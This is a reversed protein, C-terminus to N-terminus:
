GKRLTTPITVAAGGTQYLAFIDGRRGLHSLFFSLFFLKGPHSLFTLNLFQKVKDAQGDVFMLKHDLFLKIEISLEIKFVFQFM